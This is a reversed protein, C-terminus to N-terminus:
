NKAAPPAPKERKVVFHVPENIGFALMMKMEDEVVVGQYHFVMNQGSFQYRLQFSLKGDTYLGASVPVQGQPGVATGTVKEGETKLDFSMPVDGRPTVIKGAWKGDVDAAFSAAVSLAAIVIARYFRM